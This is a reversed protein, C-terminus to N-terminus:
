FTLCPLQCLDLIWTKKYRSLQDLNQSYRMGLKDNLKLIVAINADITFDGLVNFCKTNGIEVAIDTASNQGQHERMAMLERQQDTNLQTLFWKILRPYDQRAAQHLVTQGEDCRQSLISYKQENTLLSFLAYDASSLIGDLHREKLLFLAPKDGSKNYPKCLLRFFEEPTVHQVIWKLFEVEDKVCIYYLFTNGYQHWNNLQQYLQEHGITDISSLEDRWKIWNISAQLEPQFLNSFYERVYAGVTNSGTTGSLMELLM